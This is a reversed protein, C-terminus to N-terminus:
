GCEAALCATARRRWELARRMGWALAMTAINLIAVTLSGNAFAAYLPAQAKILSDSAWAQKLATLTRQM